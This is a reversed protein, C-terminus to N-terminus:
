GAGVEAGNIAGVTELEQNAGSATGPARTDLREGNHVGLLKNPTSKIQRVRSGNAGNNVQVNQGMNAQKVFAVQRPNKIEAIAEWTSRCQSPAKFALRMYLEATQTYEGMNRRSRDALMHFLADLTHAQATLMAEGREMNGASVGVAMSDIYIVTKISIFRAYM